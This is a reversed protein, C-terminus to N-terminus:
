CRCNLCLCSNLDGLLLPILMFLLPLKNRSSIPDTTLASIESCIDAPERHHLQLLDGAAPHKTIGERAGKPLTAAAPGEQSTAHHQSVLLPRRLHPRLSM